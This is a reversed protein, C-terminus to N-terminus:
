RPSRRNPTRYLTPALTAMWEALPMVQPQDLVAIFMDVAVGRPADVRGGPLPMAGSRMNLGTFIHQWIRWTRAVAVNIDGGDARALRPCTLASYAACTSHAPPEISTWETREALRNQEVGIFVAKVTSQIRRGCLVCRHERVARRQRHPCPKGFIPRGEGHVCSCRMLSGGTPLPGLTCPDPAGDVLHLTAYPMPMGSPHRPLAAIQPTMPVDAIRKM